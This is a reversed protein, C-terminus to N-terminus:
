IDRKEVEIKVTKVCDEAKVLVQKAPDQHKTGPRKRMTLAIAAIIAVLLIVSAIEFPYMYDTYLVLGLEATNNYDAAHRFASSDIQAFKDPRILVFIMESVMVISVLLCLPLYRSFRSKMEAVSIDLMMIVFLFLVMVAGVYVLVLVIGLFEAEILIWLAAATFFSLVLFLAAQVPNKVVVVMTSAALLIGAFLYFIIQELTM